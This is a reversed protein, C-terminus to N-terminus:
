VRILSNIFSLSSPTSSNHIHPIFCRTSLTHTKKKLCFVAYSIQSHSSNLRTSKRDALAQLLRKEKARLTTRKRFLCLTGLKEKESSAIRVFIATQPGEVGPLSAAIEKPLARTEIEDQIERANSLLWESASPSTPGRKGPM